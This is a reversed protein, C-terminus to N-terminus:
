DNIALAQTNKGTITGTTMFNCNNFEFSYTGADQFSALFYLTDFSTGSDGNLYYLVIPISSTFTFNADGGSTNTCNFVIRNGMTPDFVSTPSNGLYLQCNNTGVWPTPSTITISFYSLLLEGYNVGYNFVQDGEYIKSAWLWYPTASAIVKNSITNVVNSFIQKYVPPATLSNLIYATASPPNTSDTKYLLKDSALTMQQSSANEIRLFQQNTAEDFIKFTTFEDLTGTQDGVGMLYSGGNNKVGLFARTDQGLNDGNIAYLYGGVLANNWNTIQDNEITIDGITASNADIVQCSIDGTATLETCEIGSSEITVGSTVITKIQGINVMTLGGADNGNTLVQQLNVHATSVPPNLTTYNLLGVTTDGLVLLDGDVTTDKLTEAGQAVPFTLYSDSVDPVATNADIFLSSDFIPLNERPPKYSM